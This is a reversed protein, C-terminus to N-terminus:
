YLWREFLYPQEELSAQVSFEISDECNLALQLALTTHLTDYLICPFLYFQRRNEFDSRAKRLRENCKCGIWLLESLPVRLTETSWSIGLGNLSSSCLSCCVRNLSARPMLLFFFFFFINYLPPSILWTQIIVQSQWHM